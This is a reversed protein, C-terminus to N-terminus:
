NRLEIQLGFINRVTEIYSIFTEGYKLQVSLIKGFKYKVVLYWRLGSGYFPLLSVVGDIDDEYVYIRSSYSDTKFFMVRGYIRLNKIPEFRAGQYILVGKEVDNLSRRVAEIRSRLSIKALRNEVEFRLNRRRESGEGLSSRGFEDSTKIGKVRVKERFMLKFILNRSASFSTEIRYDNGNKVDDLDFRPFKFIDWYGSFQFKWVKFKAGFYFGQENWAEGYRESFANGNISFLNQNLNRLHFVFNLNDFGITLVAVYSFNKLGRSAVEGFFNLNRFYFDFEIGNYFGRKQFPRSSTQSFDRDFIEYYNLIGLAFNTWGLNLIGGYLNRFLSSRRRKNIGSFDIYKVSGLSDVSSPLDTRSYFLTLEFNKVKSNIVAGFLPKVETTSVYGSSYNEFSRVAPSIADSGKGLAVPKWMLIGQGFQLAYNGIIIKRIKGSSKYEIYFNMLENIKSEGYDKEVIFGGSLNSVNLYALQYTKFNEEFNNSFNRFNNRSLVRSRVRFHVNPRQIYGNRYLFSKVNEDVNPIEFVQERTKFGGIKKRYEVIKNAIERTILPFETLDDVDAKNLEIRKIEFQDILEDVRADVELNEIIDEEFNRLMDVEVDQARAVAIIFLFVLALKNM